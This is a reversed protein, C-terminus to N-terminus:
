KESAAHASASPDSMMQAAALDLEVQAFLASPQVGLAQAMKWITEINAHITGNEIMTLHTRAIGSLGSLVEQTLKKQKRQDRITKGITEYLGEIMSSLVGAVYYLPFNWFIDIVISM